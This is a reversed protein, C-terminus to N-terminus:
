ERQHWKWVQAMYVQAVEPTHLASPQFSHLSAEEADRVRIIGTDAFYASRKPSGKDQLAAAYVGIWGSFKHTKLSMEALTKKEAPTRKGRVGTDFSM